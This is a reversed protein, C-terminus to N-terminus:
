SGGAFDRRSAHVERAVLGPVHGDLHQAHVTAHVNSDDFPRRGAADDGRGSSERGEKRYSAFRGMAISMGPSTLRIMLSCSSTSSFSMLGSDLKMSSRPASERPRTSSTSANSSAKSISM